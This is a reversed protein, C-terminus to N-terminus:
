RHLLWCLLFFAFFMENHSCNQGPLDGSLTELVRWPTWLRVKFRQDLPEFSPEGFSMRTTTSGNSVLNAIARGQSASLDTTSNNEPPHRPPELLVPVELRWSWLTWPGEQNEPLNGMSKGSPFTVHINHKNKKKKGLSWHYCKLFPHLSSVGPAVWCVVLFWGHCLHPIALRVTCLWSGSSLATKSLWHKEAM